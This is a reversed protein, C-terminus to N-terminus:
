PKTLGHAKIYADIDDNTMGSTWIKRHLKRDWCAEDARDEEIDCFTEIAELLEATRTKGHFEALKDLRALITDPIRISTPTTSPKMYSM